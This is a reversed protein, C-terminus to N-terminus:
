ILGQRRASQHQSITKIGKDRLYNLLDHEATTKYWHLQILGVDALHRKITINSIGLVNEQIETPSLGQHHLDEILAKDDPTLDKTSM